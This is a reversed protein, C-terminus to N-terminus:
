RIQKLNKKKQLTKSHSKEVENKLAEIQNRQESLIIEPYKSLTQKIIDFEKRVHDDIPADLHKSQELMTKIWQEVFDLIRKMLIILQHEIDEKDESLLFDHFFEDSVDFVDEIVHLIIELVIGHKEITEWRINTTKVIDILSGELTGWNEIYINKEGFLVRKVLLKYDDHLSSDEVITILDKIERDIIHKQIVLELFYDELANDSWRKKLTDTWISMIRNYLSKVLNAFQSAHM